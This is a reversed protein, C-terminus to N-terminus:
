TIILWFPLNPGGTGGCKIKKKKRKLWHHEEEITISLVLDFYAAPTSKPSNTVNHGHKHTYFKTTKAQQSSVSLLSMTKM